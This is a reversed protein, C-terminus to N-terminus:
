KAPQASWLFHELQARSILTARYEYTARWHAHLRTYNEPFASWLVDKAKNVVLLNSHSGGVNIFFRDGPLEQASGGASHIVNEGGPCEYEWIKKITDTEKEPEKLLLVTASAGANCANNNFLLLLDSKTRTINHQSCFFGAGGSSKLGPKYTKGYIAVVKGGPYGIKLIRNMYKYSIYIAGNKEDYYFANDHPDYRLVTDAPEFYALDAEQMFRSTKWLWVVNGKEDYEILCGLRTQTFGELEEGPKAERMLIRYSGDGAREKRCLMNETALAMFHGNPMKTFEHHYFEGRMSDKMVTGAKPTKWVINGDYDMEAAYGYIFTITGDATFKLDGVNDITGGRPDPAYWVPNGRMDYIVAGDDVAVYHDKLQEAQKVVRLRTLSTDVNENYNTAFHHLREDKRAIGDYSIRWTYEKGFEPVEAIIKNTTGTATVVVNKRFSDVLSHNGRAIEIKYQKVGKQEPFSFGIMRYNLKSSEAPRM